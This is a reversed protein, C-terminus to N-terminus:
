PLVASSLLALANTLDAPYPANFTLREGSRPHTLELVM